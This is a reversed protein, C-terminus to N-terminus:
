TSPKQWGEASELQLVKVNDKEFNHDNYQIHHGVPSSPKHHEKIRKNLKRETEGLYKANCDGCQIMYVLGAKEEMPIKDKPHVLRSRISNYPKMHVTIGSKRLVRAIADTAHGVYPLTISGKNKTKSPDTPVTPNRPRNATIWASKTYGSVSLVKKLHEREKNRAEESSCISQCRHNLTRVVGLKHQLPQNGDFQLYQDTHTAKRYVTFNLTGSPSRTIRTDLVAISLNQEEERTFKISPHIQNIHNTFEDLLADSLAVLTDDVYRRWLTIEYPFTQIAREEFWEMFLNAVIPSVPSGM